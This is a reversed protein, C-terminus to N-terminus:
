EPKDPWTIDPATSTDVAQVAQVYQMWETLKAKDEPTIIGLMLQTQWMQTISNAEALRSTKESDAEAVEDEKTKVYETLQPPESDFDIKKGLAQGDLLQQWLDISIEKADEPINSIGEVYFGAESKSSYIKM